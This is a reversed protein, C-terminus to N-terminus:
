IFLSPSLIHLKTVALPPNERRICKHTKKQTTSINYSFVENQKDNINISNEDYFYSQKKDQRLSDM